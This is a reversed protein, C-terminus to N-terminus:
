KNRELWGIPSAHPDDFLQEATQEELDILITRSTNLEYGESIVLYRSGTLWTISGRRLCYRTVVKSELDLVALSQDQYSPGMFYFAFKQGDPSLKGYWLTVPHPLDAFHTLQEVTGDRGIRFWEEQGPGSKSDYHYDKILAAIFFRGDASWTPNMWYHEGYFDPLSALAKGAQRDYLVMFSNNDADTKEYVVLRLSPDYEVSHGSYHYPSGAIGSYPKMDPYDSQMRRGPGTLPSIVQTPSILGSGYDIQISYSLWQSGLWKSFLWDPQAPYKRQRGSPDEFVQWTTGTRSNPIIQYTLWQGDPSTSPDRSNAPLDRREGSSLDYLYAPFSGLSDVLLRGPLSRGSSLTPQVTLCATRVISKDYLDATQTATPFPGSVAPAPLPPADRLLPRADWVQLRGLDDSLVVQEQNPSFVPELLEKPFEFLVQGNATSWVVSSGSRQAALLRGDASFTFYDSYTQSKYESIERLVQGTALDWVRLPHPSNEAPEVAALLRGQLAITISNPDSANPQFSQFISGDCRDLWLVRWGSSAAAIVAQDNDSFAVAHIWLGSAYTQWLRQGTQADWLEVAQQGGVALLHGDSSFAITTAKRTPINKELRNAAIDWLDVSGDTHTVALLRGDPSFVVQSASPSSPWVDVVGPALNLAAQLRQNQLDWIVLRDGNPIALARSDPSFVPPGSVKLYGQEALFPQLDEVALQPPTEVKQGTSLAFTATLTNSDATTEVALHASDASFTLGSIPKSFGSLTRALRGTQVEWVRVENDDGGSALWHGDPSYALTTVYAHALRHPSLKGSTLDWTHVQGNRKEAASLWRGDPSFAAQEYFESQERPTEDKLTNGFTYRPENSASDYVEIWSYGPDAMNIYFYKCVAFGSGDKNFAFSHFAVGAPVQTTKQRTQLDYILIDGADQIAALQKGDPSFQLGAWVVPPFEALVQHTKAQYVRLADSASVVFSKGDPSWATDYVMGTGIIAQLIPKEPLPVGTQTPTPSPSPASTPTLTPISAAATNTPQSPTPLPTRPGCGTQELLAALLILCFLTSNYHQRM